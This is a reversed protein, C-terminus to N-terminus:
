KPKFIKKRNKWLQKEPDYIGSFQKNFILKERSSKQELLISRVYNWPMNKHYEFSNYNILIEILVKNFPYPLFLVMKFEHM